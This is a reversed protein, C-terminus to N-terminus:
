IHILSLGIVADINSQNESLLTGGDDNTYPDEAANTYVLLDNDAVLVMRIAVEREYVGNIRNMSTSMAAVAGAVTGGHFATYEGTAALALRYTRLETGSSTKQAVVEKKRRIDKTDPKRSIVDDFKSDIPEDRRIPPLEQFDPLNNKEYDTKWYSIYNQLDNPTYPDIYYTGRESIM